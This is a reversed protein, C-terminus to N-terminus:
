FWVENEDDNLLAMISQDTESMHKTFPQNLYSEFKTSFLTVPRLYQCMNADDAWEFAKKDIVTKFDEVTFGEGMRAKILELTKKNDTKYKTNLKANLYNIIDNVQDKFKNNVSKKASLKAQGVQNKLCDPLKEYNLKFYRKAPMGSFEMEVFGLEIIKKIAQNQRWRAVGTDSEIQAISYEFQENNKKSKNKLETLIVAIELGYKKILNKNLMIKDSDM